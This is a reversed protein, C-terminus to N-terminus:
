VNGLALFDKWQLGCSAVLGALNQHVLEPEFAENGAPVPTHTTFVTSSRLRELAEEPALRAAAYERWRELQLFASHGENLHFVTPALGLERLVRVGGVGLLLEQRLRNARDGGYLTDTIAWDPNGEVQTDILFLSARGVRARWVGLRVPVVEGSDDALEVVPAMPVLELPLRSTDTLPYHEIQRDNEDLRQEFYGRRYFLGIGVLPIGLESAAKLYDGALVGLGGSYTPLSEDLGFEASFYAVLLDAPGGRNRWWTEEGRDRALREQVRALRELYGPTLARGLDEDTLESLLATPNHHLEAFRRPGLADFLLRTEAIWTFSFDGAIELLAARLSAGDHVESM